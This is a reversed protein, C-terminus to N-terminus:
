DPILAGPKKPEVDKEKVVPTPTTTFNPSFIIKKVLSRSFIIPKVVEKEAM